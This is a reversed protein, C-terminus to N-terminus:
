LLGFLILGFYCSLFLNRNLTDNVLFALYDLFPILLLKFALQGLVTTFLSSYLVLVVLDFVLIFSEGLFHNVFFCSNQLKLVLNSGQLLFILVQDFTYLECVGFSAGKFLETCFELLFM